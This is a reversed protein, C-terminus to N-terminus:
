RVAAHRPQGVVGPVAAAVAQVLLRPVAAGPLEAAGARQCVDGVAAADVADDLLIAGTGSPARLAPAKKPWTLVM